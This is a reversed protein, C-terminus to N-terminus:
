HFSALIHVCRFSISCLVLAHISRKFSAITTPLKVALNLQLFQTNHQCCFTKTSREWRLIVPNTRYSIEREREREREKQRSLTTPNALILPRAPLFHRWARVTGDSGHPHDLTRAVLCGIRLTPCSTMSYIFRQRLSTMSYVAPRYM